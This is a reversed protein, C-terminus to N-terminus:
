EVLLQDILDTEKKILELIDGASNPLGEQFERVFLWLGERALLLCREVILDCEPPDVSHGNLIQFLLDMVAIKVSRPREDVLAAVLVRTAPEAAEYVTGQTVIYNELKWYAVELSNLDVASLLQSLAYGTNYGVGIETQLRLWDTQEILQEAINM